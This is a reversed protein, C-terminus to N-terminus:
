PGCYTQPPCPTASFSGQVLVTWVVGASDAGGRFEFSGDVRTPSAYLVRLEGATTVPPSTFAYIHTSYVAAINNPGDPQNALQYTREAACTTGGFVFQIFPDRGLNVIYPCTAGFRADGAHSTRTAPQGDKERTWAAGGVVLGSPPPPPAQPGSTSDGGCRVAAALVVITALIRM